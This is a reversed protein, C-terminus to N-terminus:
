GAAGGPFARTEGSTAVYTGAIHGRPGIATASSSTGLTHLDIVEGDRWLVAHRGGSATDSSGVAEGRDNIDGATTSAEPAGTLSPLAVYGGGHALLARTGGSVTSAQMLLHGTRDVGMPWPFFYPSVRIVTM